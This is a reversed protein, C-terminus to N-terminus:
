KEPFIRGLYTDPSVHRGVATQWEPQFRGTIPAVITFDEMDLKRAALELEDMQVEYKQDNMTEHDLAGIKHQAQAWNLKDRDHELKALAEQFALQARRNDLVFIVDGQKIMGDAPIHIERITGSVAPAIWYSSNERSQLDRIESTLQDLRQLSQAYQPHDQGVGVAQLRAIQAKLTAEDARLEALQRDLETLPLTGPAVQRLTVGDPSSLTVTNAKLEMTRNSEPQAPVVPLASAADPATPAAPAPQAAPPVDARAVLRWQPLAVAGILGIAISVFLTKPTSWHSLHKMAVLRRKLTQGSEAIGAALMPPSVVVESAVALLTRGYDAPAASAARIAAQDCAMEQALRAERRALWIAPHFFWISEILAHLLSWAVDRRSLHALEHAIVLRQWGLSADPIEPPLIIVPRFLGLLLPGDVASTMLPPIRKLHMRKALQACTEILAEDQSPIARSHIRMAARWQWAIRGLFGLAGAIWLLMAAMPWRPPSAFVIPAPPQDAIPTPMVPHIELSMPPVVARHVVVATRVPEQLPQIKPPSLWRLELPSVWVLSLVLKLYALRWLWCKIGAPMRPLAFCLSWVLLLAIGGEIASRTMAHLWPDAWWGVIDILRNM